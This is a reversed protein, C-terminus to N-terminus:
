EHDKDICDDDESEAGENYENDADLDLGDIVGGAALLM